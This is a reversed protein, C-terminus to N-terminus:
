GGALKKYAFFAPKPSGDQFLLGATKCWKCIEVNTDRWTFWDAVAVKWDRRHDLLLEFSKRLLKKQGSLGKGLRGVEAQTASSWGLETAYTHTKGDHNRKMVRRVRQFVDKFQALDRAYPHVGVGDFAAKAGRKKYLRKLFDWIDIGGAHNPTAAMGGLLIKANPDVGRIASAADELLTAYEPVSPTPQFFQPGNQENWIQYTTFPRDIGPYGAWFSGGPGYRQVLQTLFDRWAQRQADSHVPAETVNSAVWGPTGFIFPFTTIGRDALNGVVSDMSSWNPPSPTPQMAAWPVLFRVSGVGASQLMPYDPSDFDAQPDIGYFTKPVAQASPPFLVLAIAVLAFAAVARRTGALRGERM